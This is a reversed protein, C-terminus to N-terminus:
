KHGDDDDACVAGMVVLLLVRGHLPVGTVVYDLGVKPLWAVMGQCWRVNSCQLVGCPIRHDCLQANTISAVYESGVTLCSM